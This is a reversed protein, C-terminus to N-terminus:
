VAAEPAAREAYSELPPLPYTIQGIHGLIIGTDMWVTYGLARANECFWWDESLLRRYGSQPCEWVGVPFFDWLSGVEADGDDPDYRLDDRALIMAEFVERAICLFGTGAFKVPQLDREDPDPCPDLLNCVWGLQKQKKPYLGAVIPEGHSVVRAVDEPTFIIDSDIFLLHTADSRLFQHVLRNRARSVLSEGFLHRVTLHYPRDTATILATLSQHFGGTLGGYVPLALFLHPLGDSAERLAESRPRVTGPRVWVEVGREGGSMTEGVMEFGGADLLDTCAIRRDLGHWEYAVASVGDLSMRGLIIAESGETDIKVFDGRLLNKADGQQVAIREQKQEGLDFVSCEGSNNRGRFTEILGPYDGVACAALRVLSDERHNECFAECNEPMPEYAIVEAEPWKARAWATFAGVNAGIDLIVKPPTIWALHPPLDYEGALVKAVHPRM